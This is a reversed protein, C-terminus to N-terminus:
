YYQLLELKNNVAGIANAISTRFHKIINERYTRIGNQTEVMVGRASSAEHLMGVGGNVLPFSSGKGLFFHDYRDGHFYLRKQSDLFEEAPKVIKEMLELGTDPILPHNRTPVGPSFYYTQSSGMEHYDVSLNPRWEHWKKIWARPEPQTISIWQRNLDFGYHNTRALRGDYNHEIHDPNPNPIKSSFTDLWSIRNSHGDPNFVATILIVSNELLHNIPDGMAAALYYATPLAADMGSSEAGHVGYNLWTVVPMKDTIVQKKRSDSLNLHENKIQEM